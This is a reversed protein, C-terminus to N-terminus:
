PESTGGNATADIEAAIARVLLTSERRVRKAMVLALELEGKEILRRLHDVHHEFREIDMIVLM